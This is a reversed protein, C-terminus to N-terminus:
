TPTAFVQLHVPDTLAALAARTEGSLGSDGSAVLKIGELLSAFEYGAPVGFFRIGRDEAGSLLITAPIKDVGHRAALDADAKFDRVELTLRASLAALEELLMRTEGCYDCEFDQTFYLLTVDAPLDELAERIEERDKDRLLAM